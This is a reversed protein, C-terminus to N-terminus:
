CNTSKANSNGAKDPSVDTNKGSQSANCSGNDSDAGGGTAKNGTVSGTTGNDLNTKNKASGPNNASGDTTVSPDNQMAGTDTSQAYAGSVVAATFASALLITKLM